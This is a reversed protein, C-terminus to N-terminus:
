AIDYIDTDLKIVLGNDPPLIRVFHHTSKSSLIGMITGDTNSSDDGNDGSTEGNDGSTEGNDGSTAGTQSDENPDLPSQETSTQTSSVHNTEADWWPTSGAWKYILRSWLDHLGIVFEMGKVPGYKDHFSEWQILEAYMDCRFLRADEVGKLSHVMWSFDLFPVDRLQGQLGIQISQYAAVQQAANVHEMVMHHPADKWDVHSMMLVTAGSISDNGTMADKQKQSLAEKPHEQMKQVLSDIDTIVINPDVYLALSVSDHFFRGPSLKPIVSQAALSIISPMEGKDPFNPLPVLMWIGHTAYHEDNLADNNNKLLESDSSVFALHCRSSSDGPKNQRPSSGVFANPLKKVGQGLAVTYVVVDCAKTLERTTKVVGDYITPYCMSKSKSQIDASNACESVCPFVITGMLCEKDLPSACQNRIGSLEYLYDVKGDDFKESSGYPAVRDVHWGLTAKIGEELSMKPSYNLYKKSKTNDSSVKPISSEHGSTPIEAGLLARAMNFIDIPTADAGANSGDGGVNFIIPYLDNQDNPVKLQMASIIANVADSIYVWDHRIKMSSKPEQVFTDDGAGLKLAREMWEFLSTSRQPTDWPGYVPWFRLGISSVNYADSYTAALVEQLLKSTGAFNMPQQIAKDESRFETTAIEPTDYVEYSSAFVLRIPLPVQQNLEARRGRRINEKHIQELVTEMLGSKTQDRKYGTISSAFLGNEDGEGAAYDALHVVHSIDPYQDWLADFLPVEGIDFFEPITPRIDAKFFDCQTNTSTLCAQLVTFIRQRKYELLAMESQTRHAFSQQMQFKFEDPSFAAGGSSESPVFPSDFNDILLLQKPQFLQVLTTALQSGLFGAAGTILITSESNIEPFKSSQEGYCKVNNIGLLLQTAVVFWLRPLM